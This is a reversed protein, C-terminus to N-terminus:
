MEWDKPATIEFSEEKVTPYAITQMDACRAAQTITLALIALFANKM